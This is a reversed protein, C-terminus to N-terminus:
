ESTTIPTAKSLTTNIAEILIAATYQNSDTYEINDLSQNAYIQQTISLLTSEILPYMTTVSEDLNKLKISNINDKDVVVEVDVSQNNITLVTNYVGPIYKSQNNDENDKKSCFMFSLLLVLIIGLVIFIATYILEKMHLVVIKTKASM